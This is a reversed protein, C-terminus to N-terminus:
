RVWVGLKQGDKTIELQFKNQNNNKLFLSYDILAELASNAHVTSTQRNHTLTYKKLMKYHKKIDEWVIATKGHQRAVAFLRPKNIM